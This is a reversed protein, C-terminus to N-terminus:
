GGQNLESQILQDYFAARHAWTHKQLIYRIADERDWKARASMLIAEALASMDGSEVVIGCRSERVVHDNPFGSESVVPLGARLYHYIKSSENNHMSKGASVVVGVDAHYLYDWTQHYPVWGLYTVCQRDLRSADGLGLMYLRAGRAALQMGLLNLKEVLTRNVKPQSESNYIYGAFVCRLEDKHGYPDPGPPPIEHDVAGPVLLVRDDSGFCDAWLQRAPDSLVTVFRSARHIREQTAFLQRRHEGYFYIGPMERPGVVSGLKSIVFPHRQGGYHELTEFGKHFLSKVVDYDEWYVRMLPVRRLNPAMTFPASRFLWMPENTAIDVQHGLQALAQSMKFWRINGMEALDFRWQWMRYVTVIRAMLNDHKDTTPERYTLGASGGYYTALM